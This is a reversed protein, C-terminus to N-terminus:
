VKQYDGEFQDSNCLRFTMEFWEMELVCVPEASVVPSVAHQQQENSLLLYTGDMVLRVVLVPSGTVVSTSLSITDMQLLLTLPLCLPRHTHTHTNIFLVKMGHKGFLESDRVMSCQM